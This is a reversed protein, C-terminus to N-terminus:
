NAVDLPEVTFSTALKAYGLLPAGTLSHNEKINITTKASLVAVKQKNSSVSSFIFIRIQRGNFYPQHTSSIDPPLPM